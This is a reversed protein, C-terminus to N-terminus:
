GDYAQVGVRLTADHAVRKEVGDVVREDGDGGDAVAIDCGEGLFPTEGGRVVNDGHEEPQGGLDTRRRRRM